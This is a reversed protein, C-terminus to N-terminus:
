NKLLKQLVKYSNYKISKLCRSSLINEIKQLLFRYSFNYIFIIKNKGKNMIKKM